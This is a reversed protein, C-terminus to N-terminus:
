AAGRLRRPVEGRAQGRRHLLRPPRRAYQVALVAPHGRHARGRGRARRGPLGGLPQGDVREFRISKVTPTEDIIEAVRVELMKM